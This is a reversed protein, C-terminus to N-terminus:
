THIQVTIISTPLHSDFKLKARGRAASGFRTSFRAPPSLPATANPERSQNAHMALFAKNKPTMVLSMTMTKQAVYEFKSACLESSGSMKRAEISSCCWSCTSSVRPPLPLKQSSWEGADSSM